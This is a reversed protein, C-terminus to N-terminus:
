CQRKVDREDRGEWMREELMGDNMQGNRRRRVESTKTQDKEERRENM